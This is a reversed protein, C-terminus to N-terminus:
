GSKEIGLEARLQELTLEPRGRRRRRENTAELMEHLDAQELYAEREAQARRLDAAVQEEIEEETVEALGRRRRRENKAAIMQQIDEAELEARTEWISEASRWGLQDAGSGPYYKGILLLAVVIVGIGGFMIVALPDV